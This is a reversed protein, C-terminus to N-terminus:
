SKAAKDFFENTYFNTPDTPQLFGVNALEDVGSKWLEPVNRLLNERGQSLLLNPWNKSIALINEMDRIGQIEFDKAAREFIPRPPQTLIEEVSAKLARIFAVAADPNKELFGRTTLYGQNPMPSYKDSSFYTIQEGARELPITAVHTAIFGDIRGQKVLQFAGPGNGTTERKVDDKTLGGKKLMIDLYISTTGAVSVVGITKGKLDEAKTIPKNKASILYFNSSQYLTSIAVLPLKQTQVLRMQDIPAARIIQAEGTILQQMAQATGQAGRVTVDLGARAFHGGSKANMIEIYDPSFGFPTFFTLPTAARATRIAPMCLASTATTLAGAKLFDRRHIM